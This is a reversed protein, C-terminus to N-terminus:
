NTNKWIHNQFSLQDEISKKAYITSFKDGIILKSQQNLAYTESLHWKNEKFKHGDSNIVYIDFKKKKLQNTMGKRGSENIWTGKKKFKYNKNFELDLFNSASIMFCNSRIHPNPFIPFDIFNSIAYVISKLKSKTHKGKLASNVMSEYSGAPGLLSGEVYNNEFLKLWNNVLPRCHCNMFFIIKDLNEKSVRRYSGWDYDNFKNNDLFKKYKIQKLEPTQFIKDKEDFNKFCIILEHKSGADFNLYHNIFQKLNERNDYASILYVVVLKSM